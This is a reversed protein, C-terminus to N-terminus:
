VCKVGGSNKNLYQNRKLIAENLGKFYGIHSGKIKVRWKNRDKDWTVYSVGSQKETKKRKNENTKETAINMQIKKFFSYDYFKLTEMEGLWEIFQEETNNGYGYEKHFLTHCEDCLLIGNSVDLRREACWNYGDKHHANLDGGKKNCCQCTFDYNSFIKNRWQHYQAYDRNIIREEDTLDPNWSPSNEGSRKETYCKPCNTLQTMKDWTMEFQGHSPCNFIYVGSNGKYNEKKALEYNTNKALWIKMNYTSEEVRGVWFLTIARERKLSDTTTSSIYGEEHIFKLPTKLNKYKELEEDNFLKWGNNPPRSLSENIENRLDEKKKRFKRGKLESNILPHTKRAQFQSWCLKFPELELRVKHKWTLPTYADLYVDDILEYEPANLPLWIEKINKITYPNSKSIARPVISKGTYNRHIKLKYGDKDVVYFINQDNEDTHLEKLSFKKLYNKKVEEFSLM